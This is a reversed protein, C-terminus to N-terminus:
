KTLITRLIPVNWKQEKRKDKGSIITTRTKNYNNEKVCIDPIVSHPFARLIEGNKPTTHLKKVSTKYLTHKIITGPMRVEINFEVKIRVKITATVNGGGDM